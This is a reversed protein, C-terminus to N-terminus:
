SRRLSYRWSSFVMSGDVYAAISVERSVELLIEVRNSCFQRILYM